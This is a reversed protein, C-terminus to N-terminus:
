PNAKAKRPSPRDHTTKLQSVPIVVTPRLIMRVYRLILCTYSWLDGNQDLLVSGSVASLGDLAGVCRGHESNTSEKQSWGRYGLQGRDNYSTGTLKAQPLEVQLQPSLYTEV